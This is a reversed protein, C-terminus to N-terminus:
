ILNLSTTMAFRSQTPNVKFTLASKARSRSYDRDLCLWRTEVMKCLQHGYIKSKIVKMMMM